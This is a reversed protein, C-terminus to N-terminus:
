TRCLQEGQANSVITKRLEYIATIKKQKESDELNAYRKRERVHKHEEITDDEHICVVDCAHWNM